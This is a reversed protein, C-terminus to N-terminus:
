LSRLVIYVAVCACLFHSECTICCVAVYALSLSTHSVNWRGSIHLQCVSTRDNVFKGAVFFCVFWNLRRTQLSGAGRIYQSFTCPVLMVSTEQTSLSSCYRINSLTYNRTGSVLHSPCVSLCPFALWYHPTFSSSLCCWHGSTVHPSCYLTVNHLCHVAAKMKWRLVDLESIVNRWLMQHAWIESRGVCTDRYNRWLHSVPMVYLRHCYGHSVLLVYLRHCYGHSVLQM